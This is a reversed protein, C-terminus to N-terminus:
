DHPLVVPVQVVNGVPEVGSGACPVQLPAEVDLLQACVQL